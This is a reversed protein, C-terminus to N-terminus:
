PASPPQDMERDNNSFAPDGVDYRFHGGFFLDVMLEVASLSSTPHGSGARNTSRLIWHRMLTSIQKLREHDHAATM